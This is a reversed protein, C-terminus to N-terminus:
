LADVVAELAEVYKRAAGLIEEDEDTIVRIHSLGDKAARIHSKDVDVKGGGLATAALGAYYADTEAFDLLWDDFDPDDPHDPFPLARFREWEAQLRERDM